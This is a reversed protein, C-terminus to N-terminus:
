DTKGTKTRTMEGKIHFTPHHLLLYMFILKLCLFISFLHICNISVVYTGVTYDVM